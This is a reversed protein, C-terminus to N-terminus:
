HCPPIPPPWLLPMGRLVPLTQPISLSWTGSLARQGSLSLFPPYPCFVTDQPPPTPPLIIPTLTRPSPSPLRFPSLGLLYSRSVTSLGGSNIVLLNLHPQLSSLNSHCPPDPGFTHRGAPQDGPLCPRGCGPNGSGRPFDAGESLGWLMGPGPGQDSAQPTKVALRCRRYKKM